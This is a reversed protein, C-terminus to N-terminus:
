PWHCRFSFWGSSNRGEEALIDRLHLDVDHLLQVWSGVTRQWIHLAGPLTWLAGANFCDIKKCSYRTSEREIRGLM